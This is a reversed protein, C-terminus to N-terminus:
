IEGPIWNSRSMVNELFSTMLHYNGTSLLMLGIALKRYLPFSLLIVIQNYLSINQFIKNYKFQLPRHGGQEIHFWSAWPCPPQSFSEWTKHELPWLPLTSLFFVTCTLSKTQENEFICYLNGSPGATLQHSWLNPPPPPCGSTQGEGIISHNIQTLVPGWTMTVTVSSFWNHLTEGNQFHFAMIKWWINESRILDVNKKLFYIFNPM